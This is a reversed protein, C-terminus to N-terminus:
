LEDQWREFDGRQPAPSTSADFLRIIGEPSVELGSVAIGSKKAATIIRSIERQSAYCSRRSLKSPERHPESM